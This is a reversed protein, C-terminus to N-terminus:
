LPRWWPMSLPRFARYLMYLGLLGAFWGGTVAFLMIPLFSYLFWVFRLAM